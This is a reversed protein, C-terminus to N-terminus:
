LRVWLHEFLLRDGGGCGRGGEGAARRWWCWEPGMVVAWSGERVMWGSWLLGREGERERVSRGETYVGATSMVCLRTASCGTYVSVHVSVSLTEKVAHVCTCVGPSSTSMVRGGLICWYNINGNSLSLPMKHSSLHAIIRKLVCVFFFLPRKEPFTGGVLLEGPLGCSYLPTQVLYAFTSRDGQLFANNKGLSNKGGSVEM